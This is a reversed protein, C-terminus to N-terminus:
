ALTIEGREGTRIRIVDIVDSIYIKGDGKRGTHAARSITEVVTEVLEDPVVIELRTMKAEENRESPTTGHDRRGFGSVTSVTFGPLHPLAQLSDIVKDAMFGQVFAKIEKM